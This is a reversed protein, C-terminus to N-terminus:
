LEDMQELSLGKTEYIYKWVFVVALVCFAIWIFFVKGGLGADSKGSDVIYPTIFGLIFSWLWNSAITM